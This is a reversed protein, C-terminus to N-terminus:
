YTRKPNHQAWVSGAKAICALTYGMSKSLASTWTLDYVTGIRDLEHTTPASSLVQLQKTINSGHDSSYQCRLPFILFRPAVSIRLRM